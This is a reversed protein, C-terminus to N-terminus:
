TAAAFRRTAHHKPVTGLLGDLFLELDSLAFPKCLIPLGSSAPRGCRRRRHRARGDREHPRVRAGRAVAAVQDLARSRRGDRAKRPCFGDVRAVAPARPADDQGRRGHRRRRVPAGAAAPHARRSRAHFPQRRRRPRRGETRCSVAARCVHGSRYARRTGSPEAPDPWCRSCTTARSRPPWRRRRRARRRRARAEKGAAGPHAGRRHGETVLRYVTM